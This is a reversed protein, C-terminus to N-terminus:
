KLTLLKLTSEQHVAAAKITMRSHIIKSARASKTNCLSEKKEAAGGDVFQTSQSGEWVPSVGVGWGWIPLQM